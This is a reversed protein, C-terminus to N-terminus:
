IPKPHAVLAPAFYSVYIHLFEIQFPFVLLRKPYIVQEMSAMTIFFQDHQFKIRSYEFLAHRLLLLLFFYPTYDTMCPVFTAHSHQNSQQVCMKEAGICPPHGQYPMDGTCMRQTHSSRHPFPLIHRVICVCLFIRRMLMEDTRDRVRGIIRNLKKEKAKRFSHFPRFVRFISISFHYFQIIHFCLLRKQRLLTEKESPHKFLCLCFKYIWNTRGVFLFFLSVYFTLCILHPVQDPLM